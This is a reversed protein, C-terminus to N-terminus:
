LEEWNDVYYFSDAPFLPPPYNYLNSDYTIKRDLDLNPCTEKHFGFGLGGSTIVCGFVDLYNKNEVCGVGCCEPNYEPKTVAGNQALFAGDLELDNPTNNLIELDGEALIGLVDTGDFNTYAVDDLIFINADEAAPDAMSSAAITARKGNITGELWLNDDIFIVGEDPINFNRLCDGSCDNCTQSSTWKRYKKPYNHNIGSNTTYSNVICIDFTGNPKLTIQRGEAANDFYCGATTCNNITTGSPKQGESKLTQMVATIGTFDKKPVPYKTGATFVASPDAMGTWVGEKGNYIEHLPNTDNYSSVGAMVINNATGNFHVGNNGMIKGNITWYRDFCILDDSIVAFDSWLSRRLTAKITRTIEPKKVTSGTSTIEVINHDGTPFTISIKTEGIKNESNDLYDKVYPSEGVGLPSGNWFAEIEDQNKGEIQHALYWRYFYIGSEAIHFTNEKVEVYSAYKIHSAVFQIVSTLIISITAIIILGYAIASGCLRCKVNKKPHARECRAMRMSYTKM